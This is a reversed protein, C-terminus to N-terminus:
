NEEYDLMDALRKKVDLALIKLHTTNSVVQRKEKIHIWSIFKSIKERIFWRELFIYIKKM